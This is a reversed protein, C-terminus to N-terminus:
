AFEDNAQEQSRGQDIDNMEGDDAIGMDTFTDM